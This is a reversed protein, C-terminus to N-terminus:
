LWAFEVRMETVFALLLFYPHKDRYKEQLTNSVPVPLSAHSTSYHKREGKAYQTKRTYTV